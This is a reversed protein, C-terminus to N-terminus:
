YCLRQKSKQNEMVIQSLMEVLFSTAWFDYGRNNQQYRRYESYTEPQVQVM